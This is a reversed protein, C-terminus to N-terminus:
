GRFVMAPDISTAKRISLVSAATCMAIALGFVGAVMQPPMLILADGSRSGEVVFHAVVIAIAFGLVASLLAQQLIVKYLYGNTAGMAKLTGFERIHDVTAAYITQAVVVTGVLLGLVAGMLTTVGAGTSFVWYNRTKSLMEGNTYVDVNPVVRQLRAKLVDLAVGPMARVVLFVTQDQTMPIYDLANKFSTYVYPATTFSRVGDTYGVIRARRGNIEVTDGIEVGGLKARYHRDIIVTDDGKLDDVSGALLEWPGGLRSDVDFGVVQVAEQAGTPLKWNAFVLAYPRVEKVGEAQMAKYRRREPIPSGGNVHPLGKATIWLDVGSHEVINASTELFGLFLGFQVVILILAFVVGTLTVALRVKDHFLNRIALTSM